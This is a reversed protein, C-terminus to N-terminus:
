WLSSRSHGAGPVPQCAACASRRSQHSSSEADDGRKILSSGRRGDARSDAFSRPARGPDANRKRDLPWLHAALRAEAREVAALEKRLDNALGQHLEDQYLDSALNAPDEEDAPEGTDQHGLQALAREIREREAALLARAREPDMLAVNGWPRRRALSTPPMDNADRHRAEAVPVGPGDTVDLGQKALALQPQDHLNTPKWERELSAPSRTRSIRM